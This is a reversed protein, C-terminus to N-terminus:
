LMLARDSDPWSRADTIREFLSFFTEPEKENFKPLLRLNVVIDFSAPACGFSSRGSPSEPYCDFLSERSLKGDRVLQLQEQQFKLKAYEM